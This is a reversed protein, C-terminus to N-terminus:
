HRVHEWISDLTECIDAFHEAHGVVEIPNVKTQSCLQETLPRASLADGDHTYDGSKSSSSVSIGGQLVGRVHEGQETRFALVFLEVCGGDETDDLENGGDDTGQEKDVNDTALPRQRDANAELGERHAVYCCKQRCDRVDVLVCDKCWRLLM